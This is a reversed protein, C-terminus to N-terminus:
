RSPRYKIVDGGKMVFVVRRLATMDKLPDGEVAILDAQMGPRITGIQNELHLSQAALSTASIIAAQPDQGGAQVRFILEEVNRGHAGAVADTGFIIKLGPIRLARKFMELNQPIVKEMAAFGAEDYNGIGQYRSRNLLYNQAVLGVNPDFYTGRSAMLKLTEDSVFTGHEVSTCGAEVVQRITEDGYVHVVSRLGQAKAEGCAAEIQERTLTAGGGDRISKSAFIKTVDAGEAKRQRVQERIEEPSLKSNTIPQLSTIVRPGPLVGRAFAARADKDIASGLEQVTTVGSEITVFGNELTYGLTEAPSTDHAVFRGDPGFHWSLHNHTDILGPLVTLKSFDYDAPGPRSPEIKTIKSDTIVLTVNQLIGGQGDLLTGVHITIPKSQAFNISVMLLFLFASHIWKM